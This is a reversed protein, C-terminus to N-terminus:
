TYAAIQHRHDSHFGNMRRISLGTTPTYRKAADCQLRLPRRKDLALLFSSVVFHPEVCRIEGNPNVQISQGGPAEHLRPPRQKQALIIDPIM